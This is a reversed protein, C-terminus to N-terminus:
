PQSRGGPPGHLPQRHQRSGGAPAPVSCRWGSQLGDHQVMQEAPNVHMSVHVHFMLPQHTGHPLNRVEEQVVQGGATVTELHSFVPRRLSRSAVKYCTVGPSYRHMQVRKTIAHLEMIGHTGDFLHFTAPGQNVCACPSRSATAPSLAWSCSARRSSAAAEAVLSMRASCSCAAVPAM